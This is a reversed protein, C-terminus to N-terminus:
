SKPAKPVKAAKPVVATPVVQLERLPFRAREASIAAHSLDLRQNWVLVGVQGVVSRAWTADGHLQAGGLGEVKRVAFAPHKYIAATAREYAPWLHRDSPGSPYPGPDGGADRIACWANTRATGAAQHARIPAAATEYAEVLKGFSALLEPTLAAEARAAKTEAALAEAETYRFVVASVYARPTTRTATSGDPLTVILTPDAMPTLRWNTPDTPTGPTPGTEV